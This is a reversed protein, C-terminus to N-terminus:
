RDQDEEQDIQYIYYSLLSETFPWIEKLYPLEEKLAKQEGINIRSEIRADFKEMSLWGTAEKLRPEARDIQEALSAVKDEIDAQLEIDEPHTTWPLSMSNEFSECARQLATNGLLSPPLHIVWKSVNQLLEFVDLVYHIDSEGLSKYFLDMSERPEGDESWSAYENELFVVSIQRPGSLTRLKECLQRVHRWIFMMDTPRRVYPPYVEVTLHRMSGYDPGDDRARFCYRALADVEAHQWSIQYTFSNKRRLLDLLESSIQKSVRMLISEDDKWFRALVDAHVTKAPLQYTDELHHEYIQERLELPLSLWHSDPSRTM